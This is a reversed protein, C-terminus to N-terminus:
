AAAKIIAIIDAKKTAEGLDIGKEAALKKLEEVKMSDFPDKEKSEGDESEEPKQVEKVSYGEHERFWEVLPCEDIIAQGNAFQVGGADIGCFSPNTEVKIIYKKAM